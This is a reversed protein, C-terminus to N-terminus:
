RRCIPSLYAPHFHIVATVPGSMAYSDSRSSYQDESNSPLSRAQNRNSLTGFLREECKRHLSRRVLSIFLYPVDFFNWRRFRNQEGFNGESDCLIKAAYGHLTAELCRHRPPLTLVILEHITPTCRM